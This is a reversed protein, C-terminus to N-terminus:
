VTERLLASDHDVMREVLEDFGVTPTWGLLRAAKSADGVQLIADIPRVFRPDVEVHARWDEVGVRHLATRAFDGVTHVKGTALVFDEPTEHHLARVMGDVYDPAWGWDRSAELNGLSMTGGGDRGIRAAAETIKRTVFTTPRLTSEHNFLIATAVFLGQQRYVSALHHGFAKAAGYPSVPRITTDEDQPSHEALGFIEASSAQLVRVSHGGRTLRHAGELVAGAALGTVRSTGIPDDWSAVVSSMGGLHYVDDPAVDLVLRTVAEADALDGEHLLVADRGADVWERSRAVSQVLGHVTHGDRLLLDTVLTGDQGTVGTVLVTSM